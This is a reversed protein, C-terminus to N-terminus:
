FEGPLLVSVRSNLGGFGDDVAPATPDSMWERDNVVFAYNYVGPDLPVLISWTGPRVEQLAYTPEWNTFNGALRVTSAQPAEMRFQVFVKGPVRTATDRNVPLAFLLALVATAATVGYVPRVRLPQPSWFWQAAASLRSRLGFGPRAVQPQEQIRKMIGDALDPIQMSHSTQRAGRILAELPAVEELEEPTLENKQIEGDLYRHLRENM